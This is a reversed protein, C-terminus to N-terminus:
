VIQYTKYRRLPLLLPILLIHLQVIDLTHSIQPLPGENPFLTLWALFLSRRVHRGLRIEIRVM